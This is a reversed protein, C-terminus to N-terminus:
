SEQRARGLWEIRGVSATSRIIVPLIYHTEFISLTGACVGTKLWGMQQAKDNTQRGGYIGGDPLGLNQPFSSERAPKTLTSQIASWVRLFSTRMGEFFIM